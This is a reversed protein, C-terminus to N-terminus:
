ADADIDGKIAKFAAPTAFQLAECNVNAVVDNSGHMAAPAVTVGTVRVYRNSTGLSELFRAINGYSGSVTLSVRAVAHTDGDKLESPAGPDLNTVRVGNAEGIEMIRSFLRSTDSTVANVRELDHVADRIEDLRFALRQVMDENVINNSTQGISMTAELDRLEQQRPQVFKFWGFATIGVVIVAQSIIQRDFGASM